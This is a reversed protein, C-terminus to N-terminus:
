VQILVTPGTNDAAQARGLGSTLPTHTISRNSRAFNLEFPQQGTAALCELLWAPSDLLAIESNSVYTVPPGYVFWSPPLLLPSGNWHVTLMAIAIPASAPRRLQFSGVM